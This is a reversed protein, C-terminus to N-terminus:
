RALHRCTHPQPRQLRHPLTGGALWAAAGRDAAEAYRQTADLLMEVVGEMDRDAPLLASAELGLRRAISSRVQAKDLVEGEISSSQVVDETLTQLVAEERLAFGLSEMQGLLRGQRHRVAALLPLISEQDWRFHPWDEHEHIYRTM